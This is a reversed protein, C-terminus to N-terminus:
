KMIAIAHMIMVKGLPADKSTNNNLSVPPLEQLLVASWALMCSYMSHLIAHQVAGM